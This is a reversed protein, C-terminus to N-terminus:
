GDKEGKRRDRADRDRLNGYEDSARFLSLTQNLGVDTFYGEKTVGSAVSM